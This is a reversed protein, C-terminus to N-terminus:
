AVFAVSEDDECSIVTIHLATVAHLVLGTVRHVLFGRAHGQERPTRAAHRGPLCDSRLCPGTVSLRRDEVVKAQPHWAAQGAHGESCENLVVLVKASRDEGFAVPGRPALHALSM